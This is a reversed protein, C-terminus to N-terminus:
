KAARSPNSPVCKLFIATSITFSFSGSLGFSGSFGFSSGGLTSVGLTTSAGLISAGLSDAEVGADAKLWLLLGPLKGPDLELLVRGRLHRHAHNGGENVAWVM